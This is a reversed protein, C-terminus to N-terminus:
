LEECAALNLVGSRICEKKIYVLFDLSLFNFHCAHFGIFKGYKEASWCDSLTRMLEGVLELSLFMKIASEKEQNTRSVCQNLATQDARVVETTLLLWQIEASLSLLLYAHNRHTYQIIGSM